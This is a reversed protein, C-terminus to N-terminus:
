RPEPPRAVLEAPRDMPKCMGLKMGAAIHGGFPV